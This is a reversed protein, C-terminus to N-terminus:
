CMLELIVLVAGNAQVNGDYHYEPATAVACLVNDRARHQLLGAFM